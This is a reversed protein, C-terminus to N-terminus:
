KMRSDFIRRKMRTNVWLFPLLFSVTLYVGLGIALESTNFVNYESLNLRIFLTYGPFTLVAALIIVCIFGVSLFYTIYIMRILRLNRLVLLVPAFLKQFHINLQDYLGALFIAIIFILIGMGWLLYEKFQELYGVSKLLLDKEFQTDEVGPSEKLNSNLSEFSSDSTSANFTVVLTAPIPNYDLVSDIEEGTEKIFKELAKEKDIYDIKAKGDYALIEERIEELQDDTISDSLFINFRFAQRTESELHFSLKYSTALLLSM